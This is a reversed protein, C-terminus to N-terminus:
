QAVVDSYKEKGSSWLNRWMSQTLVQYDSQAIKPLLHDKSTAM